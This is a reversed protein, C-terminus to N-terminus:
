QYIKRLEHSYRYENMICCFKKDLDTRHKYRDDKLFKDIKEKLDTDVKLKLKGDEFVDELRYHWFKYNIDQMIDANIMVFFARYWDKFTFNDVSYSEGFSDICGVVYRNRCTLDIEDRSITYLFSLPFNSSITDNCLIFSDYKEVQKSEVLMNLCKQIGSFENMTNDGIMPNFETFSDDLVCNGNNVLYYEFSVNGSMSNLYTKLLKVVEPKNYTNFIVCVKPRSCLPKKDLNTILNEMYDKGRTLSYEEEFKQKANVALKDLLNVDNYISVFKTAYDCDDFDLVMVDEKNQFNTGEVGISTTIIPLSHNSAQILKGKVGAGYRLPILCLRVYNSFNVFERDTMHEILHIHNKYVAKLDPSIKTSCSGIIYFPIEEIQLIKHYVEALFYNMADINPDHCSGIFYFGHKDKLPKTERPCVSEYLIPFLMANTVREQNILMDYEHSSSILAYDCRKILNLEKLKITDIKLKVNFDKATSLQMQRELRMSHLDHTLYVLKSTPCFQRITDYLSNMLDFRSVFIFDYVNNHVSLYSSINNWSNYNVYVGMKQLMQTYKEEYIFNEPIYHVEINQKQLLKIIGMSYVSGCDKDPRLLDNELILAYRTCNNLFKKNQIKLPVSGLCINMTLYEKICTPEFNFININELGTFDAKINVLRKVKIFPTVKISLNVFNQFDLSFIDKVHHLLSNRIMFFRPYFLMSPKVYNMSNKLNTADEYPIFKEDFYYAKNRCVIGGYFANKKKSTYIFPSVIDANTDQMTKLLEEVTESTPTSFEFGVFLTYDDLVLKRMQRLNEGFKQLVKTVSTKIDDVVYKSLLKEGSLENNSRECSIIKMQEEYSFLDYTLEPDINDKILDLIQSHEITGPNTLNITGTEKDILMQCMVPLLEDLVTMSNQVSCIKDYKLIKMLFNRDSTDSSIPMRIRVNLVNDFMKMLRDTYGKVVSYSSGFFNPIDEEAFVKKDNTYTFICGTGMYTLHINLNKCLIALSLPCFLNDRVNEKIKGKNELYDITPYFKGEFTGHTRGLICIVNTPTKEKIENEVLEINDVRLQSVFTELNISNLISVIKQGIWGNGGYILFM